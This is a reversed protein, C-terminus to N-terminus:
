GVFEVSNNLFEARTELVRTDFVGLIDDCEVFGMRFECHWLTLGVVRGKGQGVKRRRM